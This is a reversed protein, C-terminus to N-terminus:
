KNFKQDYISRLMARGLRHFMYTMAWNLRGALKQAAGSPLSNDELAKLVVKL